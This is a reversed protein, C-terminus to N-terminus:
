SDGLLIIPPKQSEKLGIWCQADTRVCPCPKYIGDYTGCMDLCVHPTYRSCMAQLPIAEAPGLQEPAWLSENAWAVFPDTMTVAKFGVTSNFHMSSKTAVAPSNESSSLLFVGASCALVAPVIFLLVIVARPSWDTARWPREVAVYSLAAAALIYLLASVGHVGTLDVSLSRLFALVPWHYLYLSYSVIGLLVFPPQSLVRSVVTKGNLGGAIALACGVCPLLANLGPFASTADLWFASFGIL